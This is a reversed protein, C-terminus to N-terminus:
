IIDLIIKKNELIFWSINSSVYNYEYDEDWEPIFPINKYYESSKWNIWNLLKSAEDWVLEYLKEMEKSLFLKWNNNKLLVTFSNVDFSQPWEPNFQTM